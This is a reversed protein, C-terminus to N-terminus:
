VRGDHVRFARNDPDNAWKRWDADDWGEQCARLYVAMPIEAMLRLERSKSDAGRERAERVKRLIASTTVDDQFVELAMRSDDADDFHLVQRCELASGDDLRLRSM